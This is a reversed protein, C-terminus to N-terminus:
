CRRRAAALLRLARDIKALAMPGCDVECDTKADRLLPMVAELLEEWAPAVATKTKVTLVGRWCNDRKLAVPLPLGAVLDPLQRGAQTFRLAGQYILARHPKAAVVAPAAIAPAAIAPSRTAPNPPGRFVGARHIAAVALRHGSPRESLAAAGAGGWGERRVSASIM